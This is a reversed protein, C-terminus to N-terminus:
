NFKFNYTISPIFPFITIKTGDISTTGKEFDTNIDYNIFFPNKRNYLNYVSFNWSGRWKKKSDPNPTYTFSIDMRHYDDLRQSNRPGYFLNLNQETFFFGNIPTFLKGTGYIFIGGFEWKKSLQYNVVVSLDHTRDYVAPYWRGNEIREFSLHLIFQDFNYVSWNWSPTKQKINLIVNEWYSRANKDLHSTFLKSLNGEAVPFDYVM